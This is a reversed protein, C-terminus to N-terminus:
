LNYFCLSIFFVLDQLESYHVLKRILYKSLSTACYHRFEGRHLQVRKMIVGIRANLQIECTYVVHHKVGTRQLICPTGQGVLLDSCESDLSYEKPISHGHYKIINVPEAGTTQQQEAAKLLAISM